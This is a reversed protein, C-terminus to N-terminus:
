SITLPSEFRGLPRWGEGPLTVDTATTMMSSLPQHRARVFELSCPPRLPKAMEFPESQPSRIVRPVSLVSVVFGTRHLWYSPLTICSPAAPGASRRRRMEIPAMAMIAASSLAGARADDVVAFVEVVADAGVVAVVGETFIPGLPTWDKAIIACFL